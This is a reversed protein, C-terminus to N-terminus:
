NINSSSTLSESFKKTQTSISIIQDIYKNSNAIQDQNLETSEEAKNIYNNNIVTKQKSLPSSPSM